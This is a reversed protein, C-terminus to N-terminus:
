PTYCTLSWKEKFKPAENQEGTGTKWNLSSPVRRVPRLILSRPLSNMLYWLKKRMKM